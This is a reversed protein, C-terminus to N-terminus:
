ALPTPPTLGRKCRLALKLIGAGFILAVIPMGSLSKAGIMGVFVGLLLAFVVWPTVVGIAWLGRRWLRDGSADVKGLVRALLAAVVAWLGCVVLAPIKAGHEVLGPLGFGIVFFAATFGLGNLWPRRLPRLTLSVRTQRLALLVMAIVTALCASTLTWGPRFPYVGRSALERPFASELLARNFTILPDGRPPKAAEWQLPQSLNVSAFREASYLDARALLRNLEDQLAHRLDPSDAQAAVAKQIIQRDKANLLGSIFQDLANTPSSLRRALTLPDKIETLHFPRNDFGLFGLVTVLSLAGFAIIWGRRRLWTEGARAAFLAETLFIPVAISVVMHYVTLGVAWVWNVGWARGYVSLFGTDTWNPNFFSKCTLGEEVIGYAAGLLLLGAVSLHNRAVTERVLLAGCGYLGVLFLFSIPNFFQLPPSSGSLLEGIAPSLVLLTLIAKWNQQRAAPDPAPQPNFGPQEGPQASLESM